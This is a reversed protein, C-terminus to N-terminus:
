DDDSDEEWTRAIDYNCEVEEANDAMVYIQNRRCTLIQPYYIILKLDIIQDSTPGKKWSIM